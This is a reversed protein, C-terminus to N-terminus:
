ASFDGTGERERLLMFAEAAAYGSSAGRIHALARINEISRPFPHRGLESVYVRAIELKRDLWRSIDVFVNPRFGGSDPSLDFDTESVTEYALVRKVSPYRFWKCASVAADFVVAHDTHADCRYPVYVDSPALREVVAGIDRVLHSMPFTDLMATPYGLNITEKVGLMRGVRDIEDARTAVRESSFGAGETIQTAILWNVDVGLEQHKLIVGGCGFTEDDPHPAVVLASKM